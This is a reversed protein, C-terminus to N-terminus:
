IDEPLLRLQQLFEVQDFYFHHRTLRGREVTGIDCQRVKIPLGTAAVPEGGPTPLPGTHRGVFYGEDIAVNGTEYLAIPQFARDSFAEIFGVVYDVAADRGKLEGAGPGVVIADVAYLSRVTDIDGGVVAATLRDMIDRAEGM